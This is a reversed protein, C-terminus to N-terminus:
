KADGLEADSTPNALWAAIDAGIRRGCKKLIGCTGGSFPDFASYRKARFSLTKGGSRLSGKVEVWKPGSFAGGGPGHAHTIELRLNGRGDILEVNSSNASIAAPIVTQLDCQDRLQQRASANKAYAITKAVKVDGKWKKGDPVDRLDPKLTEACATGASCCTLLIATVRISLTRSKM